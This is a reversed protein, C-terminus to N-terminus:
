GLLSKLAFVIIAGYILVCFVAGGNTIPERKVGIMATTCIINIIMYGILFKEM